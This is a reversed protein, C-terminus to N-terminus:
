RCYANRDRITDLHLHDRHFPDSGPGLVTGFRGCAEGRVKQLIPKQQPDAWGKQVGIEVGNALILGSVDVAKGRGHESVPAGPQNNRPRCVYSAAIRLSKLGGGLKGVAPKVSDAMWDNLAKATACDIQAPTTLKVGSVETVAVGVELGCGKLRAKIPPITSGRIAPVGCVSGKVGVIPGPLPQPVYGAASVATLRRLNEPRPLPRPLAEALPPAAAAVQVVEPPRFAEPRRPRPRLSPLGTALEAGLVPEAASGPRLQPRLPPIGPVAIIAVPADAPSVADPQAPPASSPTEAWAAAVPAALALALALRLAARATM